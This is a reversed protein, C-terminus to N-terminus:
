GGELSSITHVARMERALDLARKGDADRRGADAGHALLLRTIQAHNYMAAYM